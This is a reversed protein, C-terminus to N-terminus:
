RLICLVQDERLVFLTTEDMDKVEVAMNKNFVVRDGKKVELPMISGSMTIRGSGASVVVGIENKTEAHAIFLGSATQKPGEEKAVAIYDRLVVVSM